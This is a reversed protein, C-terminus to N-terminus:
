IDELAMMRFAALAGYEGLSHGAFLADDVFVGRARMDATVAVDFMMIAPQAFQTAHLLGTPSRFTYQRSSATIEPFLPVMEKSGPVRRTFEMYNRRIQAGAKGGFHVTLEHPNARIIHLLSFGFRERMHHDVQDCVARAAASREYLEMAMGPEQSGQGTFVYVTRPAAVEATARLVVEDAADSTTTARVVMRGARMAVHSLRTTLRAGPRVAAAFEVSFRRMRTPDGNAAHQEVLARTHASTWLGHMLPADLGTLDIAFVNTNHPNHDASAQAYAHASAPASTVLPATLSYASEFVSPAPEAAEARAKLFALAADDQAGAGEQYDIDAIHRRDHLLGCLYVQGHTHLAAYAGSADLRHNSELEMELRAGEALGADDHCVFWEKSLLVAVDSASQLEIALPAHRTRHFGSHPDDLAAGLFLFSSRIDAIAQGDRLIQSKLVVRKGQACNALEEVCATADVTDNLRLQAAAGGERRIECGTQVMHLLGSHVVRSSLAKYASRLALVPLYDMPVHAAIDSNPPFEPLRLGAARCFAGVREADVRIGRTIFELRAEDDEREDESGGDSSSESVEDGSSRLWIDIFFERIRADRGAMLEHIPALPTQPSFLFELEIASEIHAAQHPVRVALKQEEPLWTAVLTVKNTSSERVEIRTPEPVKESNLSVAFTYGPRARLLRALYNPVHRVGQVIVESTLAAELWGGSSSIGSLTTVWALGEPIADNDSVSLTRMITNVTLSVSKPLPGPTCDETSDAEPASPLEALLGQHIGGLIDSLDENVATVYAASVPGLRLLVRQAADDLTCGAAAAVAELDEAPWWADAMLYRRLNADLAPVFPVPKQGSRTCLQMFFQVDASALPQHLVHACSRRLTEIEDLVPDYHASPVPQEFARASGLLRMAAREAFKAVLNRYSPALWRRQSRVYTLEVLRDIAEIYSMEALEIPEAPGDGDKRRVAFWPRMFDSGLRQMIQSSHIRLLQPQQEAPRSLVWQDIDRCLQAARNAAVHTPSGDLDRISVVGSGNAPRFLAPLDLADLGAAAAVLAKAPGALASERAAAVRSRVVIGDLPMSPRDFWTAWEGSLYPLAGESTGFGAAGLLLVNSHRRVESYMETLVMHFEDLSHRGQGRGGTWQLMVLAPKSQEAVALARRMEDATTATFGVYQLGAEHLRLIDAAVASSSATAPAIGLSVGLIPLRLEQRIRVITDVLWTQPGDVTEQATSSLALGHGAQVASKCATSVLKELAAASEVHGIELEALYGAKSAAAIFEVHTTTPAMGGVIVPPMGIADSLRTRIRPQQGGDTVASNDVRVAGFDQQWSRVRCTDLSHLGSIARDPGQVALEASMATEACLLAIGRGDIVTRTSTRLSSKNSPCGSAPAFDVIHTVGDTSDLARPWNAAQLYVHEVLEEAVADASAKATTAAGHIPVQPAGLIWGKARAMALHRDCVMSMHPSHLPAVASKVFSVAVQPKRQMFPVASQDEGKAAAKRRVNLVVQSLSRTNGSIAFVSDKVLTAALHVHRETEDSGVFTNYRKLM